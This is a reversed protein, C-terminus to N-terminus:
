KIIKIEDVNLALIYLLDSLRNIYQLNFKIIEHNLYFSILLREVRRCITRAMHIFSAEKTLGPYVFDNLNPLNQQYTDILSEINEVDNATLIVQQSSISYGLSYLQKCIRLLIDKIDDQIVFNYAIMLSSQLEDITGNIEIIIDNKYVRNDNFTSTQLNDGSKTYIKM